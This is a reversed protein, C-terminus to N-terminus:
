PSVGSQYVLTKLNRRLFDMQSVNSFIIKISVMKLKIILHQLQQVVYIILDNDQKLLGAAVMQRPHVIWVKKASVFM